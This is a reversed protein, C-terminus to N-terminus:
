KRSIPLIAQGAFFFIKKEFDNVKKLVPRHKLRNEGPFDGQFSGTEYFFGPRIDTERIFPTPKIFMKGKRSLKIGFSSTTCIFDKKLRNLDMPISEKQFLSSNRFTRCNELYNKWLRVNEVM